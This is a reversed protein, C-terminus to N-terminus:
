SCSLKSQLNMLREHNQQMQWRIDQKKNEVNPDFIDVSRLQTELTRKELELQNVKSYISCNGQAVKYQGQLSNYWSLLKTYDQSLNSYKQNLSQISSDDSAVRRQGNALDNRTSSLASYLGKLEEDKAKLKENLETVDSSLTEKQASTEDKYREVLVQNAGFGASFGLIILSCGVILYHEYFMSSLSM